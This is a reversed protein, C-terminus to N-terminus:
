AVMTRQVPTRMTVKAGGGNRFSDELMESCMLELRQRIRTLATHSESEGATEFRPGNDEVVVVSGSDTLCSRIVDRQRFQEKKQAKISQKKKM